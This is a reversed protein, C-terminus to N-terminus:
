NLNLECKFKFLTQVVWDLHKQDSLVSTTSYLYACSEEGLFLAFYFLLYISFNIGM